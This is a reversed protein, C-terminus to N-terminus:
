TYINSARTVLSLAHRTSFNQEQLTTGFLAKEDKDAKTLGFSAVARDPLGEGKYYPDEM